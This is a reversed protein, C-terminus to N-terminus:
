TSNKGRNSRASRSRRDDGKQNEDDKEQSEDIKQQNEDSTEETTKKLKEVMKEVNEEIKEEKKKKLSALMVERIRKEMNQVYNKDVLKKSYLEGATPIVELLSKFNVSRSEVVPNEKKGM